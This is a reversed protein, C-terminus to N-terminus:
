PRLAFSVYYRWNGHVPEDRARAFGTVVDVEPTGLAALAPVRQRLEAGYARLQTQFFDVSVGSYFLEIPDVPVGVRYSAFTSGQASGVPYAPADVRRADFLPDILPSRFGGAVFHERPSGDGMGITGYSFRATVLSRYGRATGFLLSSRERAYRGGATNGLEGLGSLQVVYRVDEDTQRLTGTFSAIGATRTAYSLATPRQWESLAALTTTLEGAERVHTRDLRLAAGLRSLDLGSTLASAMERSPAEHSAWGSLAMFTRRARSTLTVAGGAPLAAAGAAGMVSAGFRGVPDSRVIALTTTSGGFGSSASPVYRLRSPGIGYRHETPTAARAAAGTDASSSRHRPPLVSSLSDGIVISPLSAVITTTDTALRRLDYGAATLNLFWVASDPAVDAAVAAGTVRTLLVPESGNPSLRELNM